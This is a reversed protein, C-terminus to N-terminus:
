CPIVRIDAVHNIWQYRLATKLVMNLTVIENHITNRAPPKWDRYLKGAEVRNAQMEEWDNPKTARQVRYDQAVGGTIAAVPMNGFYPLIHLRLRDKHGQVWKPSRHGQTTTEYEKVFVKAVEKFTKGVQLTGTRARASLDFFWDEAMQKAQDLSEEKTSVRFNRGKMFTACQWFRSNERRYVNLKGGMLKHSITRRAQRAAGISNIDSTM